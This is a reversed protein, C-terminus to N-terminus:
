NARHGPPRRYRLSAVQPATRGAGVVLLAQARRIVRVDGDRFGQRLGQELTKITAGSCRVKFEM